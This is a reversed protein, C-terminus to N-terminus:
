LLIKRLSMIEDSREVGLRTKLSFNGAGMEDCGAELMRDLVDVSRMLGSGRGKKRIM